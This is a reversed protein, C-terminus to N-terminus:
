LEKFHKNIVHKEEFRPLSLNTYASFNNLATRVVGLKCALLELEKYFRNEGIPLTKRGDCWDKYASFVDRRQYTQGERYGCMEDFFDEVKNLNPNRTWSEDVQKSVIEYKEAVIKDQAVLHGTIHGKEGSDLFKAYDLVQAVFNKPIAIAQLETNMWRVKTLCLVFETNQNNENEQSM